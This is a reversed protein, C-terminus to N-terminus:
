AMMTSDFIVINGKKEDFIKDANGDNENIKTNINNLKKIESHKADDTIHVYLDMTMQLTAHGLYEQVVKPNIGSEICRTAFTHRFTHFSFKEFQDLSDRMTNIEKIINNIADIAIQANIPTNYKTIFLRDQFESEKAHERNAIINKQMYQKKLATMCIENIPVDRRSTYTKPDEIHFNKCDEDLYKQYTMTKNVHIVKNKLDIDDWTLAAMEGIRLGTNIAVVFLNNYFTGNCCDFFDSQEYQTLVRRECTPKNMPLKVGKMPNRVLYNDGIAKDFMDKLLIKTKNLMEYSMNDKDKCKKLLQTCTMKTVKTLPLYGIKDKIHYEYMNHYILLTGSKVFGIKYTKFWLEFWESVTTKENVPNIQRDNEYIATTLKKHLSRLDDDYITKRTGFRDVYRGQYKGNKRQSIGTGLERGRLDKGM